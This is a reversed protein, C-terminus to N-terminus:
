LRAKCELHIAKFEAPNKKVKQKVVLPSAKGDSPKKKCATGDAPAKLDPRAFFLTFLVTRSAAEFISDSSRLSSNMSLLLKSTFSISEGLETAAESFLAGRNVPFANVLLNKATKNCGPAKRQKKRKDTCFFSTIM